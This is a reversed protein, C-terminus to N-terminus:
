CCAEGGSSPKNMQKEGGGGSRSRVCGRDTWTCRFNGTSLSGCNEASGSACVGRRGGSNRVGHGHPRRKSYFEESPDVFDEDESSDYEEYPETEFDGSLDEDKSDFM